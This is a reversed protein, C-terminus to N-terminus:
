RSPPDGHGNSKKRESEYLKQRAGPREEILETAPVTHFSVVIWDAGKRIVPRHWVNRPISIWRQELNAAPDSVLINSQWVIELEAKVNNPTGKADVKMDGTGSLTMMRQHSNPHREAGTDTGGRLIFVWGSRIDPPLSNGFTELSIPEWTMLADPKRALNDGVRKVIPLIQSRVDESHVIRDLTELVLREEKAMMGKRIRLEYKM